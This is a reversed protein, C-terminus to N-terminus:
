SSGIGGRASLCPPYGRAPACGRRDLLVLAEEAPGALPAQDSAHLVLVGAPPQDRRIPLKRRAPLRRRGALLRGPHTRTAAALAFPRRAAGADVRRAPAAPRALAGAARVRHPRPAPAERRRRACDAYARKPSRSASRLFSM